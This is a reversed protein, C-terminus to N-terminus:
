SGEAPPPVSAPLRPATVGLRVRAPGSQLSGIDDERDSVVVRLSERANPELYFVREGKVPRPSGSDDYRAEVAVTYRGAELSLTVGERPTERTDFPVAEASTLSTVTGRAPVPGGSEFWVVLTLDGRTAIAEPPAVEVPASSCGGLLLLALSCALLNPRPM